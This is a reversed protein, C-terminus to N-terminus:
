AEGGIGDVHRGSREIGLRVMAILVLVFFSRSPLVKLRIMGIPMRRATRTAQLGATEAGADAGREPSDASGVGDDGGELVGSGAAANRASISTISSARSV